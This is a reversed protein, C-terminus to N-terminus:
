FSPFGIILNVVEHELKSKQVIVTREFYTSPNASRDFKLSIFYKGKETSTDRRPNHVLLANIFIYHRTRYTYDTM